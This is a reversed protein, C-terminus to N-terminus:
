MSSLWGIIGVFNNGHVRSLYSLALNGATKILNILEIILNISGDRVTIKFEVEQKEDPTLSKSNDEYKIHAYLRYIQEQLDDLPKKLKLNLNLVVISQENDIKSITGLNRM